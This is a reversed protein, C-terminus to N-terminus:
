RGKNSAEDTAPSEMPQPRDRERDVVCLMGFPEDYPNRFQHPTGSDVIVVDNPGVSQVDDGLRAEGRGRLVVVCHEHTHREYTTYGGPAVEFYRVQFRSPDQDFLVRRSVEMWTGPENKYTEVAVGDWDRGNFRRIM